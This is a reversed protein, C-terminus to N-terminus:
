EVVFYQLSFHVMKVGQHEALHLENGCLHQPRDTLPLYFTSKRFHIQQNLAKHANAEDGM